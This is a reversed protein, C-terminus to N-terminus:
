LFAIFLCLFIYIIIILIYNIKKNFNLITEKVSSFDILLLTSFVFFVTSYRDLNFIDNYIATATYNFNLDEQSLFFLAIFVTINILVICSCVIFLIRTGIHVYNHILILQDDTYLKRTFVLLLGVFSLIFSFALYIFITQDNLPLTLEEIVLICILVFSLVLYSITLKQTAFNNTKIIHQLDIATLEGM